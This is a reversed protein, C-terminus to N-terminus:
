RRFVDPGSEEGFSLAQNGAGQAQRLIFFFFGGILILPLLTGLIALWGDWASRPAVNIKISLLQEESVGLIKLNEVVGISPEKNSALEQGETLTVTLDDQDVTIAEVQGEKALQAVTSIDVVKPSDARLVFVGYLFALVVFILVAYLARSWKM